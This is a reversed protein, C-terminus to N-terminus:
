ASQTRARRWVSPYSKNTGTATSSPPWPWANNFTEDQNFQQVLDSINSNRHKAVYEADRVSVDLHAARPAGAAGAAGEQAQQQQQAAQGAMSNIRGREKLPDLALQRAFAPM